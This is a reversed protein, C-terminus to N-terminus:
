PLVEAALSSLEPARPHFCGGPPFVITDTLFCFSLGTVPDAWAVQGGQGQHGFARDSVAHGFFMREGYRHEREGALVFSLSRLMPRAMPDDADVRVRYRVDDLLADGWLRQPNHLFAQYLLAIGGANAIGGAGPIGYAAGHPTGLGGPAAPRLAEDPVWGRSCDLPLLTRAIEDGSVGLGVRHAGTLGLPQLVRQRLFDRYDLGSVREIVEALVWAGNLPHYEYRSGPPTKPLWQEFARLRQAREFYAPADLPAWAFGGLHTQVMAITLEPHQGGMFRPIFADIPAQEPLGEDFLLWLASDLLTKTISFMVFTSDANAAGFSREVLIRNGHAIAFSAARLGGFALGRDIDQQIRATIAAVKAADPVSTTGPFDSLHAM